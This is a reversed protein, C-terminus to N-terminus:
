AVGENGRLTRAMVQEWSPRWFVNGNGPEPYYLFLNQGYRLRWSTWSPLGPMRKPHAGNDIDPHVGTNFVYVLGAVKDLPKTSVRKRMQVLFCLTSVMCRMRNFCNLNTGHVRMLMEENIFKDDGTEGVIVLHYGKPIEQLTWARNFWCRDSEFDGPKQFSLPRGLGSLYCVVTQTTDYVYGITPVDLKWEEKRLAEKLQDEERIAYEQRLCLVDLWVYGAGLNLMEIRILDLNADNPMPVPWEYGNIPTMVDMREEESVWAHSIACWDTLPTVWYPVVRNAYLDWVRRPPMDRKTIRNHVIAKRRMERDNEEDKCRRQEITAFDFWYSRLHAYVTGFDSNRRIYSELVSSMLPSLIYFTGLTTNLKEFVGHVGLNACPTDALASPIVRTGTYSRQRLVPINPEDRGTEALASLTIEPPDYESVEDMLFDMEGGYNDRDEESLNDSGRGVDM